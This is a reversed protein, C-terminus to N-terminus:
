RFFSYYNYSLDKRIAILLNSTIEGRKETLAGCGALNLSSTCRQDSRNSTVTTAKSVPPMVGAYAPPAIKESMFNLAAPFSSM